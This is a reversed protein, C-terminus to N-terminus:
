LAADGSRPPACATLSSIAPPNPTPLVVRTPATLSILFVVYAV